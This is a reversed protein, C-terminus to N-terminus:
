FLLMLIGHSCWLFVMSLGEAFWPFMRSLFPFWHSVCSFVIPSSKISRLFAILSRHTFCLVDYSFLLFVMHFGDPLWQFVTPAGCLFWISFMHVDYSVIPTGYLLRHCAYSFRIFVISIGWSSWIFLILTGYPIGYSFWIFIWLFGYSYWTSVM